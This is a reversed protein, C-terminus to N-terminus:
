GVDIYILGQEIKTAYSRLAIRAPVRLARGDRVDFRGSHKPCELVHGNVVGDALHAAEHTCLGDLAYIEGGTRVLVYTRGDHDFRVLDEEEISAFPVAGVWRSM